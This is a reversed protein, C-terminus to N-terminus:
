TLNGLFCVRVCSNSYELNIKSLTQMYMKKMTKVKFRDTDKYQYNKVQLREICTSIDLTSFIWDSLRQRKISINQGNITLSIVSINIHLGMMQLKNEIQKTQKITKREEQGTKHQNIKNKRVYWKLEEVLKIAM